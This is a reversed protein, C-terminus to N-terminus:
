RRRGHRYKYRTSLQHLSMSIRHRLIKLVFLPDLPYSRFWHRRVKSSHSVFYRYCHGVIMRNAEEVRRRGWRIYGRLNSWSMCLMTDPSLPLTVQINRQGLGPGYFRQWQLDPNFLNCPDDSTVFKAGEACLFAISMKTLLETLDPLLEVVGLRHSDRRLEKLQESQIPKVGHAQEMAETHEILQSFFRELSDRHRPTRQLMAGVFACLIVHDEDNLPVRNKIKERFVTAYRGELNALTEEIVYSKEGSRSRLTYLDTETFINAPAKKRGKKEGRNFIWVYPEQDQPTNPDVWERLYCLPVYHQKSRKHQTRRM